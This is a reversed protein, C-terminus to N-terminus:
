NQNFGLFLTERRVICPVFRIKYANPENEDRVKSLGVFMLDPTEKLYELELILMKDLIQYHKQLQAGTKQHPLQDFQDLIDQLTVKSEHKKQIQPPFTIHWFAQLHKKIFKFPQYLVHWMHIRYYNADAGRQM